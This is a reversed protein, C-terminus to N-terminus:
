DQGTVVYPTLQEFLEMAEELAPKVSPLLVAHKAVHPRFGTSTRVSSYWYKAWVGDEPKPGPPWSLMEACFDLGLRSCLERLVGEPNNLVAAAELVLPMAGEALVANVLEVQEALGTDSVSADPLQNQLSTLMDHPHRCLIVNDCQALFGRDLGVLHKAMQKFFVVPTEEFALMASIVEAGNNNQAALVEEDGPHSRGTVTLYHGYLPEDQVTTDPRQRFSYMLTTSINRPGSWLQIRKTMQVKARLM